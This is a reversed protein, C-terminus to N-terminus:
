RAREYTKIIDKIFNVCREKPIIVVSHKGLVAGCLVLLHRAESIARVYERTDGGLRKRVVASVRMGCWESRCGELEMLIARLVLVLKQTSM